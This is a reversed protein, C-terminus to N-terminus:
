RQCKCKFLVSCGKSWHQLFALSLSVMFSLFGERPYFNSFILLSHFCHFCFFQGLSIVLSAEPWAQCRFFALDLKRIKKGWHKWFIEFTLLSLVAVLFYVFKSPPQEVSKSLATTLLPALPAM